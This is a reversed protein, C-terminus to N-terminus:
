FEEVWQIWYNVSCFYRLFVVVFAKEIVRSNVVSQFIVLNLRYVKHNIIDTLVLVIIHCTIQETVVQWGHHFFSDVDAFKNAIFAINELYLKVIVLPWRVMRIFRNFNSSVIAIEEM